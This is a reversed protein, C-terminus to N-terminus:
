TVQLYACTVKLCMKYGMPLPLGFEKPHVPIDSPYTGLDGYLVFGSAIVFLLLM